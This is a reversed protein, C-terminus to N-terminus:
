MAPPSDSNKYETKSAKAGMIDAEDELAADDNNNIGGKMQMTSKVRGQKQQLVHWAEHPLHKKQGPVIHIATGQAYAKANLQAPQDSNYHVKVNNMSLGSLNEVGAKLNAPLATKNKIKKSNKSKM